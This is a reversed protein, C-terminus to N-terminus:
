TAGVLHRTRRVAARYIIIVNEARSVQVLHNLGWRSEKVAKKRQQIGNESASFANSTYLITTADMRPVTCLTQQSMWIWLMEDSSSVIVWSVGVPCESVGVSQCESV